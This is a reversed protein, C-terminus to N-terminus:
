KDDKRVKTAPVGKPRRLEEIVKMDGPSYEDPLKSLTIERSFITNGDELEVSYWDGDNRFTGGSLCVNGEFKDIRVITGNYNKLTDENKRTKAIHILAYEGEKFKPIM